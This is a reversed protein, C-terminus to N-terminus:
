LVMLDNELVGLNTVDNITLTHGGGFYFVANGNQIHAMDLLESVSVDDGGARAASIAIVDVNNDFDTIIDDGGTFIFQDAGGGGTLCDNGGSGNLTDDGAGGFLVDHWKGGALFDDGSGGYLRDSGANGYLRDAGTGGSLNDGDRGGTLRDNGAGGYLKDEGINGYLKDAGWDGYLKDYGTGGYVVDRGAGGEIHDASGEGSLMNDGKNGTLHNAAGTGSLDLDAVGLLEADAIGSKLDASGSLLLHYSGDADTVFDVKANGDSMDVTLTSLTKNNIGLTVNATNVNGADIGYGGAAAVDVKTGNVKFWANGRAEGISYFDDGDSDTYAVGTVFVGDGSAAFGETLMSSNYARGQTTFSGSVQGVGIKSITEAFTNARHGASRYLGEHHNEIADAMSISGTSGAWALNERWTWSGTFDYGADEMRDGPNSNSDGTHSFENAELMWESHSVAAEELATNPSLVQLADTGITGAALGNNLGLDYRAAEAAPDLRARNILEILYQEAASITM